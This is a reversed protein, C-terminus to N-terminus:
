QDSGQGTTIICDGVVVVKTKTRDLFMEEDNAIKEAAEKQSVLGFFTQFAIDDDFTLEAIAEYEFDAPTGMLITAPYNSNDAGGKTSASINNQSQQIYRRTHLRPFHSGAISQVLPVHSSEYHSKFAVPSLGPKRYAFILVIFAM